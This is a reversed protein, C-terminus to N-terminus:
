ENQAEGVQPRYRESEPDIIANKSGGIDDIADEAMFEFFLSL